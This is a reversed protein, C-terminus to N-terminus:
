GSRAVSSIHDTTISDGYLGLARAGTIEGLHPPQLAFGEMFSPEKIYTSQPQWNFVAGKSEPIKQWLNASGSLDGYERRFSDSNKAYKLVAAIDEDAPWIDALYVPEGDTGIGISDRTMDINVNGALAFAVVLLPSMLFNAKLSQHVRAEFNRNGSLVACAVVDNKVVAEELRSDLPGSAGACTTCGYAVVYFGLKELYPLLGADRLYAAVVKSGPALSTKIHPNVKLGKEVAKKALLGAGLMLNPNSTNTCSTIAAILIDGHRSM